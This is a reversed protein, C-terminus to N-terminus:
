PTLRHGFFPELREEDSSSPKSGLFSVILLTITTWAIELRWTKRIRHGRDASGARYKILYLFILGFVLLLIAGSTLVLAIILYDSESASTTAQPLWFSM